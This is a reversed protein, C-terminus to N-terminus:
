KLLLVARHKNEMFVGGKFVEAIAYGAANQGVVSFHHGHLHIKGGAGDARHMVM